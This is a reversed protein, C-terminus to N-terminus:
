PNNGISIIYRQVQGHFVKFLVIFDGPEANEWRSMTMALLEVTPSFRKKLSKSHYLYIITGDRDQMVYHRILKSDSPLLHEAETRAKKLSLFHKNPFLREIRYSNGDFMVDYKHEYETGMTFDLTKTPMYLRDWESKSLGLGASELAFVEQASIIPLCILFALILCIKKM